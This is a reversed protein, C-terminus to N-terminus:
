RKECPSFADGISKMLDSGTLHRNASTEPYFYITSVRSGFAHVYAKAVISPSNNFSWESSLSILHVESGAPLIVNTKPLGYKASMAESNRMDKDTLLLVGGRVYEGNLKTVACGAMEVGLAGLEGPYYSNSSCGVLILGTLASLSFSLRQLIM